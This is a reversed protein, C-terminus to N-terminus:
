QDIDYDNNIDIETPNCNELTASIDKLNEHKKNLPDAIQGGEVPNNTFFGEEIQKYKGM